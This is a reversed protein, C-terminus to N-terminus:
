HPLYYVFTIKYTGVKLTLNQSMKLNVGLAILSAVRGSCLPAITNNLTM